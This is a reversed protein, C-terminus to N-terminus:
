RVHLPALEKATLRISKPRFPAAGVQRSATISGIAAVVVLVPGVTNGSAVPLVAYSQGALVGSEFTRVPEALSQVQGPDGSILLANLSAQSM